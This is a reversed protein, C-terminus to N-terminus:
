DEFQVAVVGAIRVNSLIVWIVTNLYEEKMQGVLLLVIEIIQWMM